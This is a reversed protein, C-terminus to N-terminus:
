DEDIEFKYNPKKSEIHNEKIFQGTQWIHNYINGMILQVNEKDLSISKISNFFHLAIYDDLFKESSKSPGDGDYRALFIIKRIENITPTEKKSRLFLTFSMKLEYIYIKKYLEIILASFEKPNKSIESSIFYNYTEQSAQLCYFIIIESSTKIYKKTPKLLSYNISKYDSIVQKFEPLFYERIDEWKLEM